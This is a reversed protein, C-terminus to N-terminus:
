TILQQAGNNNKSDNYDNMKMITIIYEPHLFSNFNNTNNYNKNRTKNDVATSGIGAM